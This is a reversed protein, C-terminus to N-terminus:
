EIPAFRTALEELTATCETDIYHKVDKVHQLFQAAFEMTYIPTGSVPYRSENFYKRCFRVVPQLDKSSEYKEQVAKFINIIDHGELFASTPDIQVLKNKLLLEIAICSHYVAHRYQGATYLVDIAQIEEEALMYFNM